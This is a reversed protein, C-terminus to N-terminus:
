VAGRSAKRGTLSQALLSIQNITFPKPIFYNIINKEVMEAIRRAEYNASVIVIPLQATAPRGRVEVALEYGTMLPMNDDSFILDFHERDLCKLAERGNPCGAVEFGDHQLILTILKLLAPEDEAVLIKPM